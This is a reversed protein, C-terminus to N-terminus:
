ADDGRESIRQIQNYNLTLTPEVYSCPEEVKTNVVTSRRGQPARCGKQTPDHKGFSCSNNKADNHTVSSPIPLNETPDRKTTERLAGNRPPKSIGTQITRFSSQSPHDTM